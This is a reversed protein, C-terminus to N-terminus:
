ARISRRRSASPRGRMRSTSNVSGLRKRSVSASAASRIAEAMCASNGPHNGRELHKKMAVLHALDLGHSRASLVRRECGETRRGNVSGLDRLPSSLCAQKASARLVVRPRRSSSRRQASRRRLPPARRIRPPPWQGQRARQSEHTRGFAGMEGALTLTVDCFEDDDWSRPPLADRCGGYGGGCSTTAASRVRIAAAAGGLSRAERRRLFM